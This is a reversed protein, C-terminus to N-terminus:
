PKQGFLDLSVVFGAGDVFRAGIGSEQISWATPDSHDAQGRFILVFAPAIRICGFDKAATDGLFGEFVKMGDGMVLEFGM